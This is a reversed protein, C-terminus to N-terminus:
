VDDVGSYLSDFYTDIVKKDYLVRNGIKVVAGIKKMLSRVSNKGLGCYNCCEELSLMRKVFGYDIRKNM